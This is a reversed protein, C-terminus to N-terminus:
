PEIPSFSVTYGASILRYSLQGIDGEDTLVLLLVANGETLHDIEISQINCGVSSAITTVEAVVGTKNVMPIRVELLKDSGPVWSAPLSKRTEAAHALLGTFTERDSAKLSDRLRGIISCVEDLGTELADANDFAIGCWLEPSGAAIRTTDKFGGAALRFLAKSDDAHMSALEVLASAVMHPVHSVIAVAKDHDERPLSIVRTDMGCIMEHLRSFNDPDTGGDPCLIWNSGEFLDTRAGDIGNSESGAMPHGPIYNEPKSLIESASESIHSKTSVTDTIVGSFGLRELKELYGDVAAVPTAIFVLDADNSLYADAQPDDPRWSRSVWGNEKAVVCTRSDSDIGCVEISPYYRSLAGALSAGILGLGIVAVHQFPPQKEQLAADTGATDMIGKESGLRLGHVPHTADPISWYIGDTASPFGLRM